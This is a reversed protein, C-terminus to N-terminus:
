GSCRLIAALVVAPGSSPVPWVRPPPRSSATTLSRVMLLRWSRCPTLAPTSGEEFLSDGSQSGPPPLEMELHSDENPNRPGAKLGKSKIQPLPEVLRPVENFQDDEPKLSTPENTADWTPQSAPRARTPAGASSLLAQATQRDLLGREVAVDQVAVTPEKLRRRKLEYRLSSAQAQTLARRELARSIFDNDQQDADAM